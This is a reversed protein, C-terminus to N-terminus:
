VKIMEKLRDYVGQKIGSVEMLEEISQFGGHAERYSIIAQARTEGVGPLTMLQEKTARNLDVRTDKSEPEGQTGTGVDAFFNQETIGEQAERVTPIYVQMGDTVIQAQNVVHDCADACLGGAAVIVEYLRSGEPVEYVGPYAVAGCIHIYCMSGADANSVAPDEPATNGFGGYANSGEANGSDADTKVGAANGSVPDASGAASELAADTDQATEYFIGDQRGCGLLVWAYMLVLVLLRGIYEKKRM